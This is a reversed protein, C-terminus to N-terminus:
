KRKRVIALGALLVALVAPVPALPLAAEQLLTYAEGYEYRGDIDGHLPTSDSDIITGNDTVGLELTGEGSGTNVTVRFINDEVQEVSEVSAGGTGGQEIVYFDSTDVGTVAESFYVDFEVKDRWIPNWILGPKVANQTARKINLVKPQDLWSAYLQDMCFRALTMYGLFNLHIDGSDFIRMIRSMPTPYRSDGGFFPTYTPYGGGLSVTEGSITGPQGNPSFISYEPMEPTGPSPFGFTYQMLGFPAIYYCRNLYRPDASIEQTLNYKVIACRAGAENKDQVTGEGDPDSMLDYDCLAVRIDPRVDLCTEIVVRIQDCIAEFFINEAPTFAGWRWQWGHNFRIGNTRAQQLLRVEGGDAVAANLAGNLHYNTKPDPNPPPSPLDIGFTGANGEVSLTFGERLDLPFKVINIETAGVGYGGDHNITTSLYSPTLSGGDISMMPVATGAFPGKFTCFYRAGGTTDIVEINGAGITSLDELADEVQAATANFPLPATTQGQFTLTFTGGTPPFTFGISQMEYETYPIIDRYDARGYDNGSLSVHCIDITPFNQLEMRILDLKGYGYVTNENRAWEKAMTTGIATYRGQEEYQGYGMDEMVRMFVRGPPDGPDTPDLGAAGKWMFMPWSDGVLLMRKTKEAYGPATLLLLALLLLLAKTGISKSLM